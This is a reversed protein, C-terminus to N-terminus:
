HKFLYLIASAIMTTLISAGASIVATVSQGRTELITVRTKVTVLDDEVKGIREAYGHSELRILRERVDRIQENASGLQNNISELLKLFGVDETAV